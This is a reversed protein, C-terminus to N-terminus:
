TRVVIYPTEKNLDPYIRGNGRNDMIEILYMFDWAPVIHEPPVVARYCDKESTPLMPLTRYDEHQNVSRYRLHVWKVGAPARVQATVALPKGARAATIAQHIVVLGAIGVDDPRVAYRPAHRTAVGPQLDRRQRELAVLGKELAALEDKWHGCLGAGRVGMTLDQNYVDGAAAVLQRWAEIATREHGIAADLATADGTRQFVCYNVAAPIRRAHYLALNALIKLDTITSDFEKNRHSGVHKDAQVVQATIDSAAKTFWRSTEGPRTKATEGGEVLNKAEEDFSAFQQIDSGEAKAYRPLDGLRQKEAWGRTMPFYSYPYCAAVIRPLVGSARHLAKEVYPAAEKGFRKAFERQWVDGPVEPNYGVRGFVQFFHWYREFEYDYYRYKPNLLEFPKRDHPQAEMKTCLPENVEFGDGNYLHTSLAFRRAYDPDGWLLVRATGGNWLRWHVKYRQPYRLLDAYSHRRDFQNQRNIHTPHFPMGMQEMWYKTTIRLNVGMELGADIVTDPLGKARADFRVKPAQQKMVRFVERWFAEQEAKKLGSEDHMRFQIADVKPVRRLFEALAAVTYSTVNKETLGWVLGATPKSLTKDAGPIGGGQVGGRYIHDWIGVTVNLGRAHAMEILRNLAELNRHQEPRTIGVMRVDPFQEIDFFYPYCPALFGGNEYGFIVVLSNFRNKALLDLYRAWYDQDYFRSEWYARSMTYLSLARESVAPKEVTDRVESLPTSPDGSWGIRDAVDLEAYMLGRDDSGALLWTPKGKWNTLRIVLAEPGEPVPHNGKKLLRSAPGDSSGLGAGILFKGRAKALSVARECITGKAQLASTLKELGHSAAPGPSSDLIVSVLPEEASIASAPPMPGAHEASGPSVGLGLLAAAATEKLFTRRSTLSM